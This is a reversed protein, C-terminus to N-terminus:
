NEEIAPILKSSYDHVTKDLYKGMYTQTMIVSSHGYQESIFELPAGSQKLVTGFTHRAVYTTLKKEIGLNKGIMKMHSNIKKVRYKVIDYIEEPTNRSNIYPFVYEDPRKSFRGWNEIIQVLYQNLSIRIFIPDGKRTTKTKARNFVIFDGQIDANKLFLVDKTNIGNGFYTFLWLDRAEAEHIDKPSYKMIKQVDSIDLARKNSTGKPITYRDTIGPTNFPYQHKAVISLGIADNWISRVNRLYMGVTTLSNGQRIMSAEYAKLFKVNVYELPLVSSEQNFKLLSRYTCEYSVATSIRGEERLRLAKQQIMALLNGYDGKKVGMRKFFLDFTFDNKLEKVIQRISALKEELVVRIEKLEASKKRDTLKQMGIMAQFEIESLRYQTRLYKRVRECTVKFSVSHKGDQGAQYTNLYLEVTAIPM